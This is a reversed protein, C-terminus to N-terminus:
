ENKEQNNINVILAKTKVHESHKKSEALYLKNIKIKDTIEIRNVRSNILFKKAIRKV